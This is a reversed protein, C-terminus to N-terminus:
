WVWPILRKTRAQYSPYIDPFLRVMIKEEGFVSYFFYGGYLVLIFAWLMGFSLAAGIFALLVGAYIPNRIYAYPGSTVLEAGEKQSMPMGWNRGLYFRAWIALAVGLIVFIAGIWRVIDNHIYALLISNSSYNSARMVYTIAIIFIVSVLRYVLWRGGARKATRKATFASILWVVMMIFWAAIIIHAIIDSYQM